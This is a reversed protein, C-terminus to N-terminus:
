KCLTKFLYTSFMQLSKSYIWRTTHLYQIKYVFPCKKTTFFYSKTYIERTPRFIRTLYWINKRHESTPRFTSVVNSICSKQFVLIVQHDNHLSHLNLWNRRPLLGQEQVCPEVQGLAGLLQGLLYGLTGPFYGPTGVGYNFM